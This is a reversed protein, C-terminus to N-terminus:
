KMDGVAVPVHKWTNGVKVDRITAGSVGYDKGIAALSRDDARIKPIDADTLKSSAHREGHQHRMKAVCDAINDRRTGLFLHAPNVCPPNDCTHCVDLTQDPLIGKMIFYCARHATVEPHDRGGLNIKGYGYSDVGGTWPWCQDPERIRVNSWFRQRVTGRKGPM